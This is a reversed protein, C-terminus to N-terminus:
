PENPALHELSGPAHASEDRALIFEFRKRRAPARGRATRSRDDDDGALGADALRAKQLAKEVGVAATEGRITRASHKANACRM